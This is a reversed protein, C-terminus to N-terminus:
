LFCILLLALVYYSHIICEQVLVASHKLQLPVIHIEPRVELLVAVVTLKLPDQKLYNSPQLLQMLEPKDMSVELWLVYNKVHTLRDM